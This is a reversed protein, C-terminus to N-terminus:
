PRAPAHPPSNKMAVFHTGHVKLVADTTSAKCIQWCVCRPVHTLLAARSREGPLPTQGRVDVVGHSACSVVSCITPAHASPADCSGGEEDAGSSKAEDDGGLTSRTCADDRPAFSHKARVIEMASQWAVASTLPPLELSLTRGAARM